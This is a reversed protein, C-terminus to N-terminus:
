SAFFLTRCNVPVGWRVHSDLYLLM